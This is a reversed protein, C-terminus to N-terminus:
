CSADRRIYSNEEAATGGEGDTVEGSLLRQRDANIERCMECFWLESFLFVCVDSISEDARTGPAMYIAINLSFGLPHATQKFTDRIQKSFLPFLYTFAQLSVSQSLIASAGSSSFTAAVDALVFLTM